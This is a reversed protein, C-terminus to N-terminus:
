LDTSEPLSTALLRVAKSHENQFSENDLHYENMVSEQSDGDIYLKGLIAKSWPPLLAIHTRVTDIHCHDIGLENMLQEM